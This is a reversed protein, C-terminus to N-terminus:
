CTCSRSTASRPCSAPWTSPRRRPRIRTRGTSTSRHQGGNRVAPRAAEGERPRVHLRQDEQVAPLGAAPLEADASRSRRVRGLHDRQPRNRLQGGAAGQPQQVAAAQQQPLLLVHEREHLDEAPGQVQVASGAPPREPCRTSTTTPSTASSRSTPRCCPRHHDQRRGQGSQGSPMTPIQDNYNPNRVLTFSRSPVYNQIMYPGTSPIPHTSQDSAPTNAPVFQAFELALIYLIDGERIISSSRSRGRPLREHHDRQHPGEEDDAYGNPGSVGKISSFFGVGPSDIKFDPARDHAAFDSAKVATGNSYKLDTVFSSSLNKGDASITPMSEALYPVLEAGAPGSLHKYGLLGTWVYNDIQYAAVTYYLRRTWTTRRMWPSACCRIPRAAAEPRAEARPSRGAAVAVVRRRPCARGRAHAHRAAPIVKFRSRM